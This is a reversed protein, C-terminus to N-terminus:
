ESRRQIKENRDTGSNQNKDNKDVKKGRETRLGREADKGDEREKKGTQEETGSKRGGNQKGTEPPNGEKEAGSNERRRGAYIGKILPRADGAQKLKVKEGDEDFLETFTVRKAKELKGLSEAAIEGVSVPIGKEGSKLFLFYRGTSIGSKEAEQRLGPKVPEIIVETDINKPEVQSKIADYISDLSVLPEAGEEVTLTALIVNDDEEKLYQDTVAQAVILEVADRLNMKEVNIEALIREGDGNLGRASIVKGDASVALEISPNIDITLYAAAPPAQKFSLLGAFLFVLLCAAVTLYRISPFVRPSKLPIERGVGATGGAPVPIERFEGDPTIVICSRKKAKVVLGRSEM